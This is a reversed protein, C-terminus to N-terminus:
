SVLLDDLDGQNSEINMLLSYLMTIMHEKDRPDVTFVPLDLYKGDQSLKKHYEDVTPGEKLDSRTIGIVVGGRHHISSFQDLFYKAEGIPDESDNNILVILGLARKELIRWMFDFRKQGPVGYMKIKDEDGLCIEGYDLAVTTTPKDVVNQETNQAETSVVETESLSKIATTKGAGMPGAILIVNESM